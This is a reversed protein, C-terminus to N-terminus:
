NISNSNSIFNNFLNSDFKTIKAFM